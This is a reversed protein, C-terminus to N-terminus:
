VTTIRGKVMSFHAIMGFAASSTISPRIIAASCALPLNLLMSSASSTPKDGEGHERRTFPNSCSSLILRRSSVSYEVKPGDVAEVNEFRKRGLRAVEIAISGPNPQASRAPDGAACSRLRRGGSFSKGGKQTRPCRDSIINPTSTIIRQGSRTASKYKLVPSRWIGSMTEKRTKHTRRSPAPPVQRGGGRARLLHRQRDQSARVRLQTQAM